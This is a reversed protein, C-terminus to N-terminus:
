AIGMSPIPNRVSSWARKGGRVSSSIEMGGSTRACTSDKSLTTRLPPRNCLGTVANLPNIFPWSNFYKGVFGTTYDTRAGGGQLLTGITQTATGEVLSQLAATREPNGAPLSACAEM